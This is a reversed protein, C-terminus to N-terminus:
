LSAMLESRPPKGHALMLVIRVFQGFLLKLLRVAAPRDKRGRVGLVSDRHGKVFARTASELFPHEDRSFTIGARAASRGHSHYLYIVGSRFGAAPLRSIEHPLVDWSSGDRVRRPSKVFGGLSSQRAAQSPESSKKANCLRGYTKTRLFRAGYALAPGGLRPRLFLSAGQRDNRCFTDSIILKFFSLDVIIVVKAAEITDSNPPYKSCPLRYSGGLM